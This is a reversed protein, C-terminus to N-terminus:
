RQVGQIGYTNELAEVFYSPTYNQLPFFNNTEAVADNATNLDYGKNILIQIVKKLKTETKM